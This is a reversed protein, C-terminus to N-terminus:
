QGFLGFEWGKPSYHSPQARRALLYTGCNPFDRMQSWHYCGSTACSSNAKSRRCSDSARSFRRKRLLPPPAILRLSRPRRVCLVPLRPQLDREHSLTSILTSPMRPPIKRTAQSQPSVSSVCNGGKGPSSQCPRGEPIVMKAATTKQCTGRM